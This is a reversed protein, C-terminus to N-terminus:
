NAWPDQMTLNEEITEVEGWGDEENTAKHKLLWVKTAGVITDVYDKSGTSPHDVRHGLSILQKIELIQPAFPLLKYRKTYIMEKFTKYDALDLNYEFSPISAANLEEQLSASQWQDFWVGMISYRAALQQIFERVNTFSVMYKNKRDPLWGTVLDQVFIPQGAIVERHFMSLAAKDTSRGLDITIIHDHPSVINSNFSTIRKCVKPGSRNKGGPDGVYDEVNVVPRSSPDICETVKEPYEIFGHETEPPDAMLMMKADTPNTDFEDKFELPVRIINPVKKMVGDVVVDITGDEFDFWQGSFLHLPKVEWTAAKDTYVHLNKLNARYMQMTFDEIERPYSIIFGKGRMGFRTTSSSKVNRYIKSANRAKNTGQFASAEDLVYVLTNLGEASENDSNKSLLRILKPFIIGDKTITVYPEGADPKVQSIFAGSNRIPYKDKLWRWRLVRQRLKEFFVENAKAGSPAINVCDLCEGEPQKFYVQPSKMCLCLYCVYCLILVCLTDKGSGKGWALIALSNGNSFATQPDDGIMFDFVMYQRESLPPFDMHDKSEVFERFGVPQEIFEVDTTVQNMQETVFKIASDITEDHVFQSLSFRKAKIVANRLSM